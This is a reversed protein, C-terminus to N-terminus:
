IGGVSGSLYQLGSGPRGMLVLLFCTQIGISVELPGLSACVGQSGAMRVARCWGQFGM